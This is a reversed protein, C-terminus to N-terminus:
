VAEEAAEEDYPVIAAMTQKNEAAASGIPLPRCRLVTAKKQTILSGCESKQEKPTSGSGM